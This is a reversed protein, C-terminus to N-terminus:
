SAVPALTGVLEDLREYGQVVGFEMGSQVMGDRDELSMFIVHTRAVSRGNGLDELKLESFSVHGPVGEFEFTQIMQDPTQAGHFVGHFGWKGGDPDTQVYRWSGGDWAEWKELDMAYGKPGLWQPVLEPDTYARHILDVPADFERTIDVFPLGEPVNFTTTSM